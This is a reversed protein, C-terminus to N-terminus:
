ATLKKRSKRIRKRHWRQHRRKWWPSDIIQTYYWLCALLSVLVSLWGPLWGVIWGFVNGTMAAATIGDAIAAHNIQHTM